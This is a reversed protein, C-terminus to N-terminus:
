ECAVVFFRACTEDVRATAIADLETLAPRATGVAGFVDAEVLLRAAGTHREVGVYPSVTPGGSLDDATDRLQIVHSTSTRPKVVFGAVRDDGDPVVEALCSAGVAVDGDIVNVVVLIDAIGM